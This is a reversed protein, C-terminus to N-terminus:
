IVGLKDSHRPCYHYVAYQEFWAAYYGEDKRGSGHHIVIEAEIAQWNADDDLLECVVHGTKILRDKDGFYGQGTVAAIFDMDAATYYGPDAGAVPAGTMGIAFAALGGLILRKM